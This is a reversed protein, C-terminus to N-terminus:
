REEGKICLKSEKGVTQLWHKEAHRRQRKEHDLQQKVGPDNLWPACKDARLKHRVVPAHSDLLDRLTGNLDDAASRQDPSVNASLDNRFMERDIARLKRKWVYNVKQSPVCIDLDSVICYHDSFLEQTM